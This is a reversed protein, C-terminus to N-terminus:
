PCSLVGGRAGQGAHVHDEVIVRGREDHLAIRQGIGLEFVAVRELGEIVDDGVRGKGVLASVPISGAFLAQRRKWGKPVGGGSGATRRNQQM